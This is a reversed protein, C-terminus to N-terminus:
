GHVIVARLLALVDHPDRLRHQAITEADGVKIAIDRPRLHAFADEDTVDDGVFVITAAGVHDAVASLALGKDGHRVFAELVASGAKASSEDISALAADFQALAQRAAEPEAQRVHLVISAPKREIWAGRGATASALKAHHELIQLVAREDDTLPTMDSGRREVGHSGIVEIGTPFGFRDLDAVSRGSVVAVIVDALEAASRLADHMGALLAADDAHAVIPALVGDLDLGLLLPRPRDLILAAITDPDDYGHADLHM